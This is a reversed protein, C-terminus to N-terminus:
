ELKSKKVIKLFECIKNVSKIGKIELSGSVDVGYPQFISIVEQVNEISIGGAILIPKSMKKTDVAAKHWNFTQGTGGAQGKVYSDLLNIKCPFHDAKRINLEDNYRWAKIVPKRIKSAYKADENGHLQVYDLNAIKIIENVTKIDENVFVGVKKCKVLHSIEGAAFPKIYRPSQKYFIFGIYDAGNNSAAIAAEKTKIGCIKVKIM